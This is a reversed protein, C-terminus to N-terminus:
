KYIPNHSAYLDVIFLYRSAEGLPCALANVSHPLLALGHRRENPLGDLPLQLAPLPPTLREEWVVSCM